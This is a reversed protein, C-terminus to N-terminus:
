TPIGHIEDLNGLSARQLEGTAFHAENVYFRAVLLERSLGMYNPTTLVAAITAGQLESTIIKLELGLQLHHIGLMYQTRFQFGMLLLLM